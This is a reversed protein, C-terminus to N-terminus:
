YTDKNNSFIFALAAIICFINPSYYGGTSINVILFCVNFLAIIAGLMRRSLTITPAYKMMKDQILSTILYAVFIAIITAFSSINDGRAAFIWKLLTGLVPIKYIIVGVLGILFALLTRTLFFIILCPFVCLIAKWIIPRDNM